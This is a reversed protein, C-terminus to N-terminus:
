LEWITIRTGSTRGYRKDVEVHCIASDDRYAVHNLGDAVAKLLNDADPKSTHKIEGSEMGRQVKKTKSKPIDFYAEVRMGLQADDPFRYGGTQRHYEWKVLAEFNATKPPTYAIGGRTFRPRGKAVPTDPVFIRVEGM